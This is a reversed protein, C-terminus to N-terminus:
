PSLTRTCGSAGETSKVHLLVKSWNKFFRVSENQVFRVNDSQPSLKVTEPALHEYSASRHQRHQINERRWAASLAKAELFVYRLDGKKLFGIRLM